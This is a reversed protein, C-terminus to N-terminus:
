ITFLCKWPFDDTTRHSVSRESSEIRGNRWRMYITNRDRNMFRISEKWDDAKYEM